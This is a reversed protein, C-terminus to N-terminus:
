SGGAQPSVGANRWPQLRRQLAGVGADLAVALLAAPVAGLLLLRSNNLALGRNIFEGLGGAGIFASLTAIGVSWVCALRVGTLISPVALPMEVRWLLQRATMGIGVGAERADAPVEELGTITGRIVPLLAYLVLATIAPRFGIGLFPLLFALLALSPVTQIVNAVALLWRRHAPRRWAWVGLPIGLAAAAVVAVATLEVHEVLRQFLEPARERLFDLLPPNM